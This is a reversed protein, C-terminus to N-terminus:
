RGIVKKELEKLVKGALECAEQIKSADADKEVMIPEGYMITIKAFPKPAKFKDWSNFEWYSSAIGVVPLIPIGTQSAIVAVGPKCIQRPGKPGDVTIGGSYGRNIYSIYQEIAEKGGKDVNKKRSSGRISTFGLRDSIYAAFDGDKSKSTLTLYPETWKHGSLVSFVQEHWLAFIFAKKENTNKAKERMEPNIFHLRYTALCLRVFFWLVRKLIFTMPSTYNKDSIFDV